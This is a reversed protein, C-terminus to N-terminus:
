RDHGRGLQQTLWFPTYCLILIATGVVELTILSWPWPGFYDYLSPHEPPGCLYMYNSGTVANFLMVTAALANTMLWVWLVSEPRPRMKLGVTLVLVSVVVAGHSTFYQIYALGPFSDDLDPTLIAQVTGGLGWFYALEYLNQGLRRVSSRQAYVSADDRGSREAACVLVLAVVPVALDCLHLPLSEQVTWAGGVILHIQKAVQSALATAALSWCVTRRVFREGRRDRFRRLATALIATVVAIGALAGLHDAGLLAFGSSGPGSSIAM